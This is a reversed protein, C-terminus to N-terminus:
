HRRESVREEKRKCLKKFCALKKTAKKEKRWEEGKSRMRVEVIGFMCKNLRLFNRIIPM